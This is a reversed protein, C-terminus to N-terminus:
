FCLSGVPREVVPSSFGSIFAYLWSALTAVASAPVPPLPAAATSYLSRSPWYRSMSARFSWRMIPAQSASIRPGAGNSEAPKGSCPQRSSVPRILITRICRASANSHGPRVRYLGAIVRSGCRAPLLHIDTPDAVSGTWYIRKAALYGSYDFADPNGFNRPSRIKAPVEIKRGYDLPVSSGTKLNVTLRIFARPALALTFQERQPSFVPPDVVCGELLAAEGDEVNLKPAAGQRHLVQSAMGALLFTGCVTALRTHRSVEGAACLGLALIAIVAPVFLDSFTFFVFHALLIGIILAALPLLLPERHLIGLPSRRSNGRGAAPVM